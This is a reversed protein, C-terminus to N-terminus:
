NINLVFFFRTMGAVAPCRGPLLAVGAAPRARDLFRAGGVGGGTQGTIALVLAQDETVTDADFDGPIRGHYLALM